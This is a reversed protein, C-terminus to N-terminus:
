EDKVEERAQQSLLEEALLRGFKDPVNSASTAEQIAKMAARLVAGADADTVPEIVRICDLSRVPVPVYGAEILKSLADQTLGARRTYAFIKM